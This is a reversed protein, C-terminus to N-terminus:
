DAPVRQHRAALVRQAAHPIQLALRQLGDRQRAARDPGCGVTWVAVNDKAAVVGDCAHKRPVCRPGDRASGSGVVLGAHLGKCRGALGLLEAIQVLALQFPAFSQARRARAVALRDHDVVLALDLRVLPLVGLELPLKRALHGVGNLVLRVKGKVDLQIAPREFQRVVALVIGVGRGLAEDVVVVEALRKQLLNNIEDGLVAVRRHQLRAASRNHLVGIWEGAAVGAACVARGGRLRCICRYRRWCCCAARLEEWIRHLHQELAALSRGHHVLELLEVSCDTRAMLEVSSLQCFHLGTERREDCLRSERNRPLLRDKRGECLGEGPRGLLKKWHQVDCAEKHDVGADCGARNINGASCGRSSGGGVRLVLRLGDALSEGQPHNGVDDARRSRSVAAQRQQIRQLAHVACLKGRGAQETDGRRHEVARGCVVLVGAVVRGALALELAQLDDVPHQQVGVRLRVGLAQEAREDAQAGQDGATLHQRGGREREFAQRALERIQLAMLVGADALAGHLDQCLESLLSDNESFIRKRTENVKTSSNKTFLLGEM